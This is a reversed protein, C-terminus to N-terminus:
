RYMIFGLSGLTSLLIIIALCSGTITAIETVNAGASAATEQIRTEEKNQEERSLQDRQFESTFTGRARGLRTSDVLDATLAIVIEDIQVICISKYLVLNLLNFARFPLLIDDIFLRGEIISAATAIAQSEVIQTEDDDDDSSSSSSFSRNAPPLQLQERRIANPDLAKNNTSSSPLDEQLPMVTLQLEESPPTPESSSQVAPPVPSSSTRLRPPKSFAHIWTIKTEKKGPIRGPQTSTKSNEAYLATKNDLPSRRHCFCILSLVFYLIYAIQISSFHFSDLLECRTREYGAPTATTGIGIGGWQEQANRPQPSPPPSDTTVSQRLSEVVSASEDPRPQIGIAKAIRYSQQLRALTETTEYQLMRTAVVSEQM